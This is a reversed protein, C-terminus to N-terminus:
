SVFPMLDSDLGLVQPRMDVCTSRMGEVLWHRLLMARHAVPEAQASLRQPEGLRTIFGFPTGINDEAWICIYIYTYLQMIM